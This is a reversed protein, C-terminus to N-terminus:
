NKIIVLFLVRYFLDDGVINWSRVWKSYDMDVQWKYRLIEEGSIYKDNNSSAGGIGNIRAFRLGDFENKFLGQYAYRHFTIFHM